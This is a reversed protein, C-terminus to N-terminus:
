GGTLVPPRRVGVHYVSIELIVHINQSLKRYITPSFVAVIVDRTLM